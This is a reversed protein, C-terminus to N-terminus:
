AVGMAAIAPVCAKVWAGRNALGLLAAEMRMPREALPQVVHVAAFPFVISSTFRCTTLDTASRM